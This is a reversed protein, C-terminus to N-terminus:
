RNYGKLRLTTRFTEYLKRFEDPIIEKDQIMKLLYDIETLREPEELATKLMKEYLAPLRESTTGLFGSQGMVNEELVTMLYDDGLVFAVYEVFSKKDKVISNVVSSEREEPFGSTPILIVRTLATERGQVQIQYFESLQLIELGPFNMEEQLPFWVDRRLPAIKIHSFDRGDPLGIHVRATYKGTEEVIEAQMKMRCLEKVTRELMRSEDEPQEDAEEPIRVEQFPNNKGDAPGCFLDALLREGNLYRNKTGLCLMMEVNANVASHSANMSGLYLCTDSYKRRLYMKAHIDQHQKEETEESLYEEGDVIDDKLVYVHFRSAQEPTLKALESKRTILTRRTGTLDHGPKNWYEILSSSLFPSVVVLDSFSYDAKWYDPCFLPDKNMDYADNGIGLPMITFDEKFEPQDLVFSVGDLDDMLMKLVARKKRSDSVQSSIRRRLFDLFSIIPRTKDPQLIEDSSDICISIDWSRDFTLNRSLVAFRYKRNGEQDRYQLLWTKPHFAPYHSINRKKSLSVPIVMKELLVMLPSSKKVKAIQGSECFILIRGSVKQLANLMSIPNQLLGSDLDEKLGLAIAVATLAELDLSYTTGVAKELVYGDPPLLMSSYNVRDQNSNTRFM